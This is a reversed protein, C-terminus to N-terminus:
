IKGNKKRENIMKKYKNTSFVKGRYSRRFYGNLSNVSNQWNKKLLIFGNYQPIVYHETFLLGTKDSILKIYSLITKEHISKDESKFYNKIQSLVSQPNILAQQEDNILNDALFDITLVVRDIKERLNHQLDNRSSLSRYQTRAQQLMKYAYNYGVM